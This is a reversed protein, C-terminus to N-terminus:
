GMGSIEPVYRGWGLLPPLSLCSAYMWIVILIKGATPFTTIRGNVPGFNFFNGLRCVSLACLTLM